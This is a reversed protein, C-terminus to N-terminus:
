KRSCPPRRAEEDSLPKHYTLSLIVEGNKVVTLWGSNHWGRFGSGQLRKAKKIAKRKNAFHMVEYYSDGGWASADLNIILATRNNKKRM